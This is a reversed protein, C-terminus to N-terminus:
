NELASKLQKIESETYSGSISCKGGKIEETVRPAAIVRGDFLIAIDRGRNKKTISSWKEAGPTSFSILLAYNGQSDLNIGVEEIDKQSPFVDKSASKRIAYLSIEQGSNEAGSVILMDEPVKTRFAESQVYSWLTNLHDEKCTGFRSSEPDTNEMQVLTFFREDPDLKSILEQQTYTEYFSVKGEQYFSKRTPTFSFSSIVLSSLILGLIIYKITKM